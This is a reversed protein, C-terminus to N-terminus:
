EKQCRPWAGEEKRGTGCCMQMMQSMMEACNFPLGAKKAEMMKRMLDAFDMGACFKQFEKQTNQSDEAMKKKRREESTM